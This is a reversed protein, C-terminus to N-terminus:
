LLLVQKAATPTRLADVRARIDDMETASPQKPKETKWNTGGQGPIVQMKGKKYGKQVQKIQNARNEPKLWQNPRKRKRREKAKQNRQKKQEAAKFHM